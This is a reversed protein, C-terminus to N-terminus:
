EEEGDGPGRENADIEERKYTLKQQIFAIQDKNLKNHVALVGFAATLTDLTEYDWCAIIEDNLANETEEPSMHGYAAKFRAHPDIPAKPQEDVNTGLPQANYPKSYDAFKIYSPLREICMQMMRSASVNHKVAETLIFRHMTAPLSVSIRAM